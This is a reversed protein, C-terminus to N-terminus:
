PVLGPGAKFTEVAILLAFAVMAVRGNLVEAEKTFPGAGNQDMNAGRLAPIISAVIITVFGGLIALPATKLQIFVPQRSGLEAGLAALMGFMAARSNILEPLLGSFSMIESIDGKPTEIEGLAQPSRNGAQEGLKDMDLGSNEKTAQVFEDTKEQIKDGLSKEARVPAVVRTRRVAPRLPAFAAVNGLSARM